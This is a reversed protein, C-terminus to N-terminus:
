CHFYVYGSFWITSVYLCVSMVMEYAPIQKAIPGFLKVSRSVEQGKDWLRFELCTTMLIHIVKVKSKHVSFCSRGVFHYM